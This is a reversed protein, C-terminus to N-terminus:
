LAGFRLFPIAHYHDLGLDRDAGTFSGLIYTM